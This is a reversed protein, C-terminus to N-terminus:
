PLAYFSVGAQCSTDATIFRLTVGGAVERVTPNLQATTAIPAGTPVAIATSGPGVWVDTGPEFSFVVSYKAARTPAVFTQEVGALLLFQKNDDSFPLGFGVAGSADRTMLFQTM